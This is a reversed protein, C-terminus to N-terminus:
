DKLVTRWAQATERDFYRTFGCPWATLTGGGASTQGSILLDTGKGFAGILEETDGLGFPNPMEVVVTDGGSGTFWEVVTLTVSYQDRRSRPATIEVVEGAVAFDATELAESSYARECFSTTPHVSGGPPETATVPVETPISADAWMTVGVVLAASGAAAWGASLLRKRMGRRRAAAALGPIKPASEAETHLLASLHAEIDTKM